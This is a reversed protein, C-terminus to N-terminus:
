NVPSLNIRVTRETNQVSTSYLQRLDRNAPTRDIGALEASTSLNNEFLSKIIFGLLPLISPLKSYASTYRFHLLYLGFTFGRLSWVQRGCLTPRLPHLTNAVKCKMAQGSITSTESVTFSVLKKVTIIGTRGYKTLPLNQYTKCDILYRVYM